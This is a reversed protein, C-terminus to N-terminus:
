SGLIKYFHLFRGRKLGAEWPGGAPAPLGAWGLERVDPPRFRGAGPREAGAVLESVPLAQVDCLPLSPHGRPEGSIAPVGHPRSAAGSACLLGERWPERCTFAPRGPTGRGHM